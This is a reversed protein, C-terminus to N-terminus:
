EGLLLNARNQMREAAEQSSINGDFFAAAEENIIQFLSKNEYFYLHETIERLLETEEPTVSAIEQWGEFNEDYDNRWIFYSGSKDYRIQQEFKDKLVM